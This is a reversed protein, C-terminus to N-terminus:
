YVQPLKRRIRASKSQRESEKDLQAREEPTVFRQAAKLRAYSEDAANM